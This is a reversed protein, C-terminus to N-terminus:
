LTEINGPIYPQHLHQLVRELLIGERAPYSPYSFTTRIAISLFQVARDIALPLSDGHLLSGTLISTFADGTGPFAAPIEDYLIRWFQGEDRNYAVVAKQRSTHGIPVSTFVTIRPGKEAFELLWEKIKVVDFISRYPKGLLLAAETVNPTIVDALGIYTQMRAVMNADTIGYLKGNDGLVPDIIILQDRSSFDLIFDTMVDIQRASNLFGSYIADFTMGISRWHELYERLVDTLDNMKVGPFLGHTSFVGTPVPCVQIGMTALIPIVVTLSARGFGSLDHIAAVRPVPPQM